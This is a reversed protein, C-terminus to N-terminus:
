VAAAIARVSREAPRDGSDLLDEKAALIAGRVLDSRSVEGLGELLADVSEVVDPRCRVRLRGVRKGEALPSGALRAMRTALEPEAAARALYYRILAPAFRSARAGYRDAVVELIDELPRPVRVEIVEEKVAIRADRIRPQSQAPVTLVENTTPDVGVLVGPVRVGSDLELERYRYEVEVRGRGEALATGRDGEKLIRM